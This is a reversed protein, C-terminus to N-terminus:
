RHEATKIKSKQVRYRVEHPNRAIARDITALARETDGTQALVIARLSLLEPDEQLPEGATDLQALALDYREEIIWRQALLRAIDRRTRRDGGLSLADEAYRQMTAVDGYHHYAIEALCVRPYPAGPNRDSMTAYFTLDNRCDLSGALTFSGYAAVVAAALMCALRPGPAPHHSPRLPLAVAAWRRVALSLLLLAPALAWYRQSYPLGSASVLMLNLIGAGCWAILLSLLLPGRWTAIAWAVAMGVLMCLVGATAIIQAPGTVDRFFVAHRPIATEFLGHLVNLLATASRTGLLSIVQPRLPPPHIGAAVRGIYAALIGALTAAGCALLGAFRTRRRFGVAIASVGIATMLLFASEKTFSATLSLVACAGALRAFRASRSARAICLCLGLAIMEVILDPLSMFLSVVETRAPHAAFISGLFGAYAWSGAGAANRCLLTFLLVSVAFLLLSALHYIFPSPGFARYLFLNIFMFVPRYYGCPLVEGFELGYDRTLLELAFGPNGIGAHERVLAVDDSVFDCLLVPWHFLFAVAVPILVCYRPNLRHSM